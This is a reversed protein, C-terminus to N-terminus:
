EPKPVIQRNSLHEFFSHHRLSSCRRHQLATFSLYYGELEAVPSKTRLCYLLQIEKLM